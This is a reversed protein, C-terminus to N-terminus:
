DPAVAEDSGMALRLAAALRGPMRDLLWLKLAEDWSRTATDVEQPPPVETVLLAGHKELVEFTTHGNASREFRLSVSADGVRVRRLTVPPLWEPLSPRIIALVRAPAFPYIGLLTQLLLVM